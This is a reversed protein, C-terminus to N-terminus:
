TGIASSLQMLPMYLALLLGAIVIGMTVLLAPEITTIFRTLNTDIEEDFFDALSNLMDALAGTSEGVEVMRIAVDPFVNRAELSSALGEGERVGQAVVDLEHALHRNSMSRAAVDLSEVLPMGGNLLTALTRAMQATAFKWCIPGVGPLWLLWRDLLARRDAGRLWASVGGVAAAAVLLGLLFYQRAVASLGVIVRTGLPLTSGFDAYFEAFEPVVQLVIIGVVVLSLALLIVPYVLASITRRRVGSVLKQYGVYRRIVEKLGGSREGAQLSATYVGPFLAGQAEFAESLSAGGRVREHIDDLVPKFTPHTIRSRLIDLSQVLPLGAHLLTALELNFVMFDRAAIRRRGPRLAPAWAFGGRRKLSLVHMGRQEFDHRLRAENEAVYTGEVIQGGATGLRCQYEMATLGDARGGPLASPRLM